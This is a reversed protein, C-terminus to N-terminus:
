AWGKFIDELEWFNADPHAKVLEVAQEYGDFQSVCDGCGTLAYMLLDFANAYATAGWFERKDRHEQERVLFMVAAIKMLEDMKKDGKM